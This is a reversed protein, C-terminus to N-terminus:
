GLTDEEAIDQGNCFSNIEFSSAHDTIAVFDLPKSIRAMAGSPLSIAEGRAFRYATDVDHRNGWLYADLSISTHVHLDGFFVSKPLAASDVSPSFGNNDGGVHDGGETAQATVASSLIFLISIGRIAQWSTILKM